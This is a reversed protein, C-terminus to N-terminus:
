FRSTSRRSVLGMMGLAFIALTSPETVNTLDEYEYTLTVSGNATAILDRVNSFALLAASDWTLEVIANETVASLLESNYILGAEEVLFTASDTVTFNLEVVNDLGGNGDGNGNGSYTSGNISYNGGASISGGGSIGQYGSTFQAFFDIDWSISFSVLEGLSDDFGSFLSSFEGSEVFNLEVTEGSEPGYSFDFDASQEIITAQVNISAFLLSTTLILISLYKNMSLM